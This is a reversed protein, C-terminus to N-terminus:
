VPVMPVTEDVRDVASPRSPARTARLGLVVTTTIAKSTAPLAAPQARTWPWDFDSLSHHSSCQDGRGEGGEVREGGARAGTIMLRPDWRAAASLTAADDATDIANALEGAARRANAINVLHM